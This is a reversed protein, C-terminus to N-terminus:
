SEVAEVRTITSTTTQSPLAASRDSPRAVEGSAPCQASSPTLLVLWWSPLRRPEGMHRRDSSIRRSTPRVKGRSARKRERSVRICIHRTSM